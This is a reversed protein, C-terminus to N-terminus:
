WKVERLDQEAHDTFTVSREQEVFPTKVTRSYTLWINVYKPNETREIRLDGPDFDIKLTTKGGEGPADFMQHLRRVISERIRADNPEHYCLNAAEKLASKVEQNEWYAGGFTTVWYIGAAVALLLLVTIFTLGRQPKL